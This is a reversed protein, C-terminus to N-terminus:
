VILPAFYPGPIFSMQLLPKCVSTSTEKNKPNTGPLKLEFAAPQQSLIIAPRLCGSTPKVTCFYYQVFQIYVPIRIQGTLARGPFYKRGPHTILFPAVVKYSFPGISAMLSREM